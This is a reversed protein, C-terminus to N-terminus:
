SVALRHLRRRWPDLDVRESVRHALLVGVRGARPDVWLSGGTFGHHGFSDASLPRTAVPCAARRWWGLRYRGRGALAAAVREGDLVRAPRLWEAGLRWLARAPAFLGAHGALGGLFRANGDQAQGRPPGPRLGVRVGLDAALARERANDLRTEVAREAAPAIEVTSVGLPRLVHRQLLTMAAAGTWHEVSRTWLIYGLDSYTPRTAGQCDPQLIREVVDDPRRLHRYLPRWALLGSRHRLLATLPQRALEAPALPWIEGLPLELPLLGRQDLVLALTASWPKTLSALDFRDHVAVARSRAEDVWGARAQLLIGDADGVCAAAATVGGEALLDALLRDLESPM